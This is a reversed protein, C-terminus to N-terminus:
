ALQLLNCSSATAHQQLSRVVHDRAVLFLSHMRGILPRMEQLRDALHQFTTEDDEQVHDDVWARVCCRVIYELKYCYWLLMFFRCFRVHVYICDHVKSSYSLNLCRPCVQQTISCVVSGVHLRIPAQASVTVHHCITSLNSCSAPLGALAQAVDRMDGAVALLSAHMEVAWGDGAERCKRLHKRYSGDGIVDYAKAMFFDTFAELTCPM